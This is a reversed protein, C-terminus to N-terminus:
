PIGVVYTMPMNLTYVNGNVIIESQTSSQYTNVTLSSGSTGGLAQNGVNISSYTMSLSTSYSISSFASIIALTLSAGALADNVLAVADVASDAGPIVGTATGIALEVGLSAVMVSAANVAGAEADAANTYGSASAVFQQNAITQGPSLTVSGTQSMGMANFIAYWYPSNAVNSMFAEYPDLNNSSIGTVSVSTTTGGNIYACNAGDTYEYLIDTAVVHISVGSIYISSVNESSTPYANSSASTASFSGDTGSWSPSTSTDVYHQLTNKSASNFAFELSGSFQNFGYNLESNSPLDLSAAMLPMPASITKDYVTTYQTNCSDGSGGIRVDPISMNVITTSNLPIVESPNGMDFYVSVNFHSDSGSNYGPSFPDYPINNYYTYVYFNGGSAYVYSALMSLSVNETGRSAYKQWQSSINFFEANLYGQILGNSNASGQFLRVEYPNASQNMVSINHPNSNGLSEPVPSFIGVSVNSYNYNGSQTVVDPSSSAQIFNVHVYIGPGSNSKEEQANHM